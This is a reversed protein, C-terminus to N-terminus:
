AQLAALAADLREEADKMIPEVDPADIFEFMARPQIFSVEIGDAHEQMVVNCPLMLGIYRDASLAKHALAPNCAGLILYPRHDVDIKKKLTTRVDIETLVGFGNAKLASEVDARAADWDTTPLVIHKGYDM